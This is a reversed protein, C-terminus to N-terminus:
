RPRGFGRRGRRRSLFRDATIQPSCRVRDSEPADDAIEIGADVEPSEKTRLEDLAKARGDIREEDEATFADRLALLAKRYKDSVNAAERDHNDTAIGQALKGLAKIQVKDLKLQHIVQLAGVEMSLENVDVKSPKPPTKDSKQPAAALVTLALLAAGVISIRRSLMVREWAANLFDRSSLRLIPVDDVRPTDYGNSLTICSHAAPDGLGLPRSLIDRHVGDVGRKRTPEPDAHGAEAHDEVFGIAGDELMEVGIAKVTTVEARDFHFQGGDGAAGTRPCFAQALGREAWKDTARPRIRHRLHERLADVSNADGRWVVPMEVRRTQGQFGALM